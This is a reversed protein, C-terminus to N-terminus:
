HWKLPPQKEQNMEANRKSIHFDRKKKYVVSENGYRKEKM